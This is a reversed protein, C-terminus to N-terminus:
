IRRHKELEEIRMKLKENEERTDVLTEMLKGTLPLYTELLSKFSSQQAISQKILEIHLNQLDNKLSSTHFEVVSGILEKLEPIQPYNAVNAKQVPSYCPRSDEKIVNEPIQHNRQQKGYEEEYKKKFDSVSSSVMSAISATPAIPATSSNSNFTGFTENNSIKTEIEDETSSRSMTFAHSALKSQSLPTSSALPKLPTSSISSQKSSKSSGSPSSSLRRRSMIPTGSVNSEQTVANSSSSSSTTPYYNNSSYDKYDFTANGSTTSGVSVGYNSTNSATVEKSEYGSYYNYKDAGYGEREREMRIEKERREERERSRQLSQLFASRTPASSLLETTPISNFNPSRPSVDSFLHCPSPSPIM